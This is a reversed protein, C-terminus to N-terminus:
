DQDPPRITRLFEIGGQNVCDRALDHVQRYFSLSDANAIVTALIPVYQELPLSWRTEPLTLLNVTQIILPTEGAWEIGIRVEYESTGRRKSVARILGMIDTISCEIAASDIEHGLLYYDEPRRHGGIAAAITVSGDDHVSAWAERWRLGDATATNAAVWRRRAIGPRDRNVTDLPHTSGSDPFNAYKFAYERGAKFIGRAEENTLRTQDTAPLRPHAVAILWARAATDRGVATENYLNILAENSHRREDFRARYMREIEPEKMWVTHAGNRIPAGFYENRYVLHPGDVTAPVVVVVCRCGDQGLPRIDLGFVPPTIASIAARRLLTEQSDGFDGVDCREAAEAEGSDKVGYVIVGGGSNAMAAIDKPFESTAVSKTEPLKAKWDLDTTEALKVKVAEDIFEDTIPGPPNGLLRHLATFSV